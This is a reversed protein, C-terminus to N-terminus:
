KAGNVKKNLLDRVKLWEAKDMEMGLANVAYKEDIEKLMQRATKTTLNGINMTIATTVDQVSYTMRGLTYRFAWFLVDESVACMRIEISKEKKGVPTM